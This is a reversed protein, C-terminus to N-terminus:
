GGKACGHSMETGTNLDTMIYCVKENNKDFYYDWKMKQGGQEYMGVAHCMQQGDYEGFGKIEFSMSETEGGAGGAYNWQAGPACWDGTGSSTGGTEQQGGTGESVTEGNTSTNQANENNSISPEQTTGKTSTGICGMMVVAFLLITIALITKM